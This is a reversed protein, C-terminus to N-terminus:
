DAGPLRCGAVTSLTFFNASDALAYAVNARELLPRVQPFIPLAFGTSTKHRHIIIQHADFEIDSRTHSGSAAQGLGAVGLFELFDASDQADAHISQDAVNAIIPDIPEINPM